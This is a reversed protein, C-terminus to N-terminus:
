IIVERGELLDYAPTKKMDFDGKGDLRHEDKKRQCYRMAENRVTSWELKSRGLAKGDTKLTELAEKVWGVCNWGPEGQRIPTNRLIKITRRGNAVKGVMVRILVMYSAGSASDIEEYEWAPHGGPDLVEKAHCRLGSTDDTEVKPGIMISWHYMDEKGPMTPGGGRAHLVVYLRDKNSPM